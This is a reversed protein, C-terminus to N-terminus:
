TESLATSPSGVPRARASSRRTSPACAVQTRRRPSLTSLMGQASSTTDSSHSDVTSSGYDPRAGSGPVAGRRNATVMVPRLSQDQDRRRQDAGGDQAQSGPR